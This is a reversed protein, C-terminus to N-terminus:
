VMIVHPSFLTNVIRRMLPTSAVRICNSVVELRGARADKVHGKIRGKSDVLKIQSDMEDDTYWNTLSIEIQSLKNGQIDYILLARPRLLQM